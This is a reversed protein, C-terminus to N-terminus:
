RPLSEVIINSLFLGYIPATLPDTKLRIDVVKYGRARAKFLLENVLHSEVDTSFVILGIGPQSHEQALQLALTINIVNADLGKLRLDYFLSYAPPLMTPTYTVLINKTTYILREVDEIVEKYKDYLEQAIISFDKVESILRKARLTKHLTITSTIAKALLLSMCLTNNMANFIVINESRIRSKVNQHIEPSLILYNLGLSEGIDRLRIINNDQGEGFVGLVDPKFQMYPAVHYIFEDISYMFTAVEPRLLKFYWYAISSSIIGSGGYVLAIRQTNKIFDEVRTRYEAVQEEIKKFKDILESINM